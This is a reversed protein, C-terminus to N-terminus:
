RMITMTVPSFPDLEDPESEEFAKVTAPDVYKKDVWLEYTYEDFWSDDSIYYGSDGNDKGWSNEIKWRNPKEEEDLNVGTLTMAHCCTSTRYLLREGKSMKIDIGLLEDERILKASMIGEKSLCESTVDSAFWIVDDNQLSKIAAEKMEELPVSFWYASPMGEVNKIWKSTYVQKEKWGPLPYHGLVMYNSLDGGIYEDFFTKPSFDGINVVKGDKDKFELTFYKPPLGLTIGLVKYVDALFSDKLALVEEETKGLEIAKRLLLIDKAVMKDLTANLEDTNNSVNSDPMVYSPVCGYKTVLNRFWSFYGGDNCNTLNWSNLRSDMPEDKLEIARQLTINFKELKDYFQLYAQSLEIDSINLKKKAIVRLVNLGSFIWCRGSRKQNTVKGADVNINFTNILTDAVRKDIASNYIGNKTVAREIIKNMKNSEYEERLSNIKTEEIM